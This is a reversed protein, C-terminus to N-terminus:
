NLLQLIGYKDSEMRVVGLQTSYYIIMEGDNKSTLKCVNINSYTNGDLNLSVKFTSSNPNNIDNGKISFHYNEKMENYALQLFDGDALRSISINLNGMTITEWEGIILQHCNKKYYVTDVPLIRYSMNSVHYELTDTKVGVKRLFKGAYGSKYSQPLLNYSTDSITLLVVERECEVVKCNQLLLVLM